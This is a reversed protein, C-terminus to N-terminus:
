NNRLSEERQRARQYSPLATLRQRFAEARESLPLKFHHAWQLTQALLLDAVLPSDTGLLYGQEPLDSALEDQIKAFEWQGHALNDAIRRERPLAFKHKGILWLPQEIEGIILNIWQHHRASQATAQPPLLRTPAYREALYLCIAVSETLNVGNDELAPVKARPNMTLFPPKQHAGQALDVLQYDWEIGIEELVWAVRFSRTGPFGYLTTM